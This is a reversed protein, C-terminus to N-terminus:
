STKEQQATSEGATGNSNHSRLIIAPYQAAGALITSLRAAPAIMLTLWGSFAAGIRFGLV